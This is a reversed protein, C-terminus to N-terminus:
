TENGHRRIRERMHALFIAQVKARAAVAAADGHHGIKTPLNSAANQLVSFGITGVALNIKRSHRYRQVSATRPKQGNDALVVAIEITAVTAIVGSAAAASSGIWRDCYNETLGSQYLKM